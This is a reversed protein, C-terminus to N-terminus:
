CAAEGAVNGCRPCAAPPRPKGDAWTAANGVPEGKCFDCLKEDLEENSFLGLCEAEAQDFRDLAAELRDLASCLPEVCRATIRQM